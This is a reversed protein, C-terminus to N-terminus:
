GNEWFEKIDPFKDLDEITKVGQKKLNKVAKRLERRSQGFWLICRNTQFHYAEYKCHIKHDRIHVHEVKRRPLGFDNGNATGWDMMAM